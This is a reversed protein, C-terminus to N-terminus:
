NAIHRGIGNKTRHYLSLKQIICFIACERDSMSKKIEDLADFVREDNELQTM